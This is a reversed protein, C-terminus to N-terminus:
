ENTLINVRVNRPPGIKGTEEVVGDLIQGRAFTRSDRHSDLAFIAGALWTSGVPEFQTAAIVCRSHEHHQLFKIPRQNKSIIARQQDSPLTLSPGLKPKM